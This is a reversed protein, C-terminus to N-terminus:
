ALQQLYDGVTDAFDGCPAVMRAAPITAIKDISKGDWFSGKWRHCRSQSSILVSMGSARWAGDLQRSYGILLTLLTVLWSLLM